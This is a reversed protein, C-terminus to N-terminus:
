PTKPFFNLPAIKSKWCILKNGNTLNVCCYWRRRINLFYATGVANTLTNACILHLM